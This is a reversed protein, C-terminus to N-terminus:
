VLELDTSFNIGTITVTDDGVLHASPTHMTFSPTGAYFFEFALGGGSNFVRLENAHVRIGDANVTVIDGPIADLLARKASEAIQASM